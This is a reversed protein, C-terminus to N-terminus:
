NIHFTPQGNPKVLRQGLLFTGSALALLETDSINGFFWPQEELPLNLAEITVAVFHHLSYSGFITEFIKTKVILEYLNDTEMNEYSYIDFGNDECKKNVQISHETADRDRYILTNIESGKQMMFNSFKKNFEKKSGITNLRLLNGPFFM